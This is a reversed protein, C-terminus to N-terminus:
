LDGNTTLIKFACDSRTFRGLFSSVYSTTGLFADVEEDVSGSEFATSLKELFRKVNSLMYYGARLALKRLYFPMPCDVIFVPFPNASKELLVVGQVRIEPGEAVPLGGGQKIYNVGQRIGDVVEEVMKLFKRRDKEKRLKKRLKKPDEAERVISRLHLFYVTDLLRSLAQYELLIPMSEKIYEIAAGVPKPSVRRKDSVQSFFASLVGTEITYASRRSKKWKLVSRLVSFENVSRRVM